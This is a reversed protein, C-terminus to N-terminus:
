ENFSEETIKIMASKLKEIMKIGDEDAYDAAESLWRLSNSIGDIEGKEMEVRSMEMCHLFILKKMLELTEM